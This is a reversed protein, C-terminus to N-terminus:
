EFKGQFHILNKVNLKIQGYLQLEGVICQFVEAFERPIRCTDQVKAPLVIVDTQRWM